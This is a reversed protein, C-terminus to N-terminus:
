EKGTGPGVAAGLRAGTSGAMHEPAAEASWDRTREVLRLAVWFILFANLVHLGAIARLVGQANMHYPLLLLSQVGTLGTVAAVLWLMRRPARGLWGVVVLLLPLCGVVISNVSAHWYFFGAYAFLGLGALLVQVLVSALVLWTGAVFARRALDRM